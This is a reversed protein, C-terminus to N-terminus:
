PAVQLPINGSSYLAVKRCIDYLCANNSSDRCPVLVSKVSADKYFFSYLTMNAAANLRYEESGNRNGLYINYPKPTVKGALSARSSDIGIKLNKLDIVYEHPLGDNVSGRLIDSRVAVYPAVPAQGSVIPSVGWQVAEGPEYYGSFQWRNAISPCSLTTRLIGGDKLIYGLDVYCMSAVTTNNFYIASVQTYGTPLKYGCKFEGTGKNYFPQQSLTDFMCPRGNPDLAPIMHVKGGRHNDLRVEYIRQSYGAPAPPTYPNHRNFIYISDGCQAAPSTIDFPYVTDNVVAKTGDIDIKIRELFQSPSAAIYVTSASSRIMIQVAGFGSPNWTNVRYWPEGTNTYSTGNLSYHSSGGPIEADIYFRMDSWPLVGTDIYQNENAELYELEIYGAPLLGKRGITGLPNFRTRISM